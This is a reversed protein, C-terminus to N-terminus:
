GDVMIRAVKKKISKVESKMKEFQSEKNRLDAIATELPTGKLWGVVDNVKEKNNSVIGKSNGELIGFRHKCYQGNEGAPCTCHATFKAGSKEFITEYPNEASGQILFVIESM